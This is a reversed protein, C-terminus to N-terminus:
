ESRDHFGVEAGSSILQGKDDVCYRAVAAGTLVFCGVLRHLSTYM